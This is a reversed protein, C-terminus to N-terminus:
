FDAIDFLASAGDQGSTEDTSQEATVAAGEIGYYKEFFKLTRYTVYPLAIGLSCITLLLNAISFRYLQWITYTAKLQAAQFSIHNQAYRICYMMFYIRSVFMTPILLLLTLYNMRKLDDAKGSFTLPINGWAVNGLFVQNKQVFYVHDKFGLTLLSKFFLKLSLNAYDVRNGKLSFRIGQWTTRSYIYQQKSYIAFELIWVFFTISIFWSVGTVGMILIQNDTGLYSFLMPLLQQVIIFFVYFGIVKLFAKLLETPTGHYIFPHNFVELHSWIYKRLNTKAWFRYIGFTLITLMMNKFSIKYHKSITGTYKINM